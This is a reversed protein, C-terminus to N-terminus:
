YMSAIYAITHDYALKRLSPSFGSHALVLCLFAATRTCRGFRLRNCSAPRSAHLPPLGSTRLLHPQGIAVLAAHRWIGRMPDYVRPVGARFGRAAVTIASYPRKARGGLM